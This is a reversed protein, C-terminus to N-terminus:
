FYYSNNFQKAKYKKLPILLSPIPDSNSIDMNDTIINKDSFNNMNNNTEYKESKEM